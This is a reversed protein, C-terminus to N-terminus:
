QRKLLRISGPGLVQVTRHKVDYVLHRSSIEITEEPEQMRLIAPSSAAGKVELVQGDRHIVCSGSALVQLAENPEGPQPAAQSGILLSLATVILGTFM